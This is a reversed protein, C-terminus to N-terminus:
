IVTCARARNPHGIEDGATPPRDDMAGDSNALLILTVGKEPVKLYLSSYAHPAWGYHWVLKTGEDEQVFWGMGYPLTRGSSSITPTFMAEKSAESVIRNRDMAVDFKALDLVTSIMGGRTRKEQMYVHLIMIVAKDEARLISLLERMEDFIEMWAIGHDSQTPSAIGMRLCVGDAVARWMADVTDIVIPNYDSEAAWKFWEKTEDLDQLIHRVIGTGECIECSKSLKGNCQPCVVSTGNIEVGGTGQEFQLFFPDIGDIGLDGLAAATSTKGVKPAGKWIQVANEFSYNPKMKRIPVGGPGKIETQKKKAAM